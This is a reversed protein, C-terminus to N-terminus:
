GDLIRYVSSVLSFSSFNESNSTPINQAACRSLNRFKRNLCLPICKHWGIWDLEIWDMGICDLGILWESMWDILWDILDFWILDILWDLLGILDFWIFWDTVWILDLCDIMKFSVFDFRISDFWDILWHIVSDILGDILCDILNFWILDLWILWDLLWILDFWILWDILWILDFWILWDILWILWDSLWDIM